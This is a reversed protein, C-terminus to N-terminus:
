TTGLCVKGIKITESLWRHPSTGDPSLVRNTNIVYVHECNTNRRIDSDDMTERTSQIAQEYFSVLIGVITTSPLQSLRYLATNEM